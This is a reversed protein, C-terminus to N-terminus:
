RPLIVRDIEHIIGNGQDSDAATIRATNGSCDTLLIDIGEMTAVIENGQVTTFSATGAGRCMARLITAATFKGAIIHYTLMDRLEGKNEPKMLNKLNAGTFRQFAKESPAFVTFTGAKGLLETLEAAEVAEFLTQFKESQLGESISSAETHAHVMLPPAYQASALCTMFLLLLTYPAAHCAM